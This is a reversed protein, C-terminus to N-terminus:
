SLQDLKGDEPLVTWLKGSFEPVSQIAPLEELDYRM